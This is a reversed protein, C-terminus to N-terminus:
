GKGYGQTARNTKQGRPFGGFCPFGRQWPYARTTAAFVPPVGGRARFEPRSRAAPQNCILPAAAANANRTLTKARRDLKASDLEPRPMTALRKINCTKWFACPLAPATARPPRPSSAKSSTSTSSRATTPLVLGAALRKEELAELASCGLEDVLVQVPAEAIALLVARPDQYRSLLLLPAVTRATCKNRASPTRGRRRQIVQGRKAPDSPLGFLDPEFEDGVIALAQGVAERGGSM